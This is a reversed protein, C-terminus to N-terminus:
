LSDESIVEDDLLLEVTTCDSYLPGGDVGGTYQTSARIRIRLRERLMQIIQEENM